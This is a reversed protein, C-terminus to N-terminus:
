LGKDKEFCLNWASCSEEYATSPLAGMLM